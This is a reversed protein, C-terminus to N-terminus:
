RGDNIASRITRGRLMFMQISAGFKLAIEALKASERDLSVNNQDLRSALGEQEVIRGAAPAGNAALHRPDTRELGGKLAQGLISSFEIEKAKYGPTNINAINAAVVTQRRALQDLYGSLQDITANSILDVSM